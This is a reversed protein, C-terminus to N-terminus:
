VPQSPLLVVDAGGETKLRREPRRSSRRGCALEAVADDASAAVRCAGVVLIVVILWVATILITLM